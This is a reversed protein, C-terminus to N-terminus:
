GGSQMVYSGVAVRVSEPIAGRAVIFAQLDAFSDFLISKPGNWEQVPIEVELKLAEVDQHVPKVNVPPRKANAEIFRHFDKPTGGNTEMINICGRHCRVMANKGQYFGIPADEAITHGCLFCTDGSAAIDFSTSKRGGAATTRATLRPPM